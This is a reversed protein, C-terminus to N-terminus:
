KKKRTILLVVAALPWVWAKSGPGTSGTCPANLSIEILSYEKQFRGKLANGAEGFFRKDPIEESFKAQEEPTLLRATGAFWGSKLWVEVGPNQLLQVNMSSLEAATVAAIIKSKYEFCPLTYKGSKGPFYLVAQEGFISPLANMAPGLGTEWCFLKVKQLASIGIAKKDTNKILSLAKEKIDM